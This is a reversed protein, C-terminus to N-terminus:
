THPQTHALSLSLSPLAISLLVSSLHSTSAWVSEPSCSSRSPQQTDRHGQKHRNTQTDTHRRTKTDTRRQSRHRHTQTDTHRHTETEKDPPLAASRPRPRPPPPLHSQLERRLPAGRRARAAADSRGSALRLMRTTIMICSADSNHHHFTSVIRSRTPTSLSLHQENQQSNSANVIDCSNKAITITIATTPMMAVMVKMEVVVRMGMMMMMMMMMVVVDDDNGDGCDEECDDEDDGVRDDVVRDRHQQPQHLQTEGGRLGANFM